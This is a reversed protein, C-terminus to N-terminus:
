FQGDLAELAAGVGRIPRDHGGGDTPPGPVETGCIECDANDLRTESSWSPPHTLWDCTAGACGSFNPAAPGIRFVNPVLPTPRLPRLVVPLLRSGPKAGPAM